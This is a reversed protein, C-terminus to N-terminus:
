RARRIRSAGRRPLPLRSTGRQSSSRYRNRRARAASSPVCPLARRPFPSPGCMVIVGSRGDGPRMRGPSSAGAPVGPVPSSTQGSHLPVPRVARSCTQRVQSPVPRITRPMPPAQAKKGTRQSRARDGRDSGRRDRRQAAAQFIAMRRPGQIGDGVDVIAARRWPDIARPVAVGEDSKGEMGPCRHPPGGEEFSQPTPEGPSGRRGGQDAAGGDRSRGVQDVVM